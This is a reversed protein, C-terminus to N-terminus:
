ALASLKEYEIILKNRLPISELQVEKQLTIYEERGEKTEILIPKLNEINYPSARMDIERAKKANLFLDRLLDSSIYPAIKYGFKYLDMNVHICAPQDYDIMNTRKLEHKNLPIADNTFFRYADYHTCCLINSEVVNQIDRDSVRLSVQPHQRKDSKYVMAWEHLGFCHFIGQRNKINNLYQIAWKLYPKRHEPFSQPNIFAMNEEISIYDTWDDYSNLREEFELKVNIGPSWRLLQGSSFSYYSFLFDYVPHKNGLNKWKRYELIFPSLVAEHSKKRSTWEKYTLYEFNM